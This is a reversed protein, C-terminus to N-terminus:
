VVVQVKACGSCLYVNYVLICTYMYMYTCAQLYLIHMLTGARGQELEQQTASLQEQLESVSSQLLEVQSLAASHSAETQAREQEVRSQGDLLAKLPLLM